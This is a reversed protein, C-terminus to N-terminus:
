GNDEGEYKIKNLAPRLWRILTKEARRAEDPALERLWLEIGSLDRM